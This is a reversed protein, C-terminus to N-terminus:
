SVWGWSGLKKKNKGNVSLCYTAGRADDYTVALLHDGCVYVDHIGSSFRAIKSEKGTKRNRRYIETYGRNKGGRTKLYYSYKGGVVKESVKKSGYMDGDIRNKRYTFKKTGYSKGTQDYLKKGLKGDWSCEGYLMKKGWRFLKASYKSGRIKCVKQKGSGDKKMRCIYGTLESSEGGWYPDNVVRAEQYYIQGNIVLPDRGVALREQKKGDKSFRYVYWLVNDSGHSWNWTTYIYGGSITLTDFGMTGTDRADVLIKKQKKKVDYRIISDNNRRSGGVYYICDGSRVAESGATITKAAAEAKVPFFVTLLCVATAMCVAWLVAAGHRKMSKTM